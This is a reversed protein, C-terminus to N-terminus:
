HNPQLIKTQAVALASHDLIDESKLIGSSKKDSLTKANRSNPKIDAPTIAM